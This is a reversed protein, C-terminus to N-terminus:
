AAPHISRFLRTRAEDLAQAAENDSMTFAFAHWAGLFVAQLLTQRSENGCVIGCVYTRSRSGCGAPPPLGGTYGGMGRLDLPQLSKRRISCEFRESEPSDAPSGSGAEKRLTPVQRSHAVGPM